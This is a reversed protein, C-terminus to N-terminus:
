NLVSRVVQCGLAPDHKKLHLLKSRTPRTGDRSQSSGHKSRAAAIMCLPPSILGTCLLTSVTFAAATAMTVASLRM